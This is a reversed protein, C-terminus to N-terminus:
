DFYPLKEFVLYVDNEQMGVCQRSEFSFRMGKLPFGACGKRLVFFGFTKVELKANEIKFHM